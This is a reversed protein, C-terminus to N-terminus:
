GFLDGLGPDSPDEHEIEHMTLDRGDDARITKKHAEFEPEMIAVKVIEGADVDGLGYAVDSATMTEGQPIKEEMMVAIKADRLEM